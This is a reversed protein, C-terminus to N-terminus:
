SPELKISKLITLDSDGIIKCSGESIDSLPSQKRLSGKPAGANAELRGNGSRREGKM